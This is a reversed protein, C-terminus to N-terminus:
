KPGTHNTSLEACKEPGAIQTRRFLSLKLRDLMEGRELKTGDRWQIHDFELPLDKGDEPPVQERDGQSFVAVVSHPM